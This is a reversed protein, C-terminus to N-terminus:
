GGQGQQGGVLGDEHGKSMAPMMNEPGAHWAPHRAGGVDDHRHARRLFGEADQVCRQSVLRGDGISAKGCGGQRRSGARSGGQNPTEWPAVLRFSPAARPNQCATPRRPSRRRWWCATRPAPCSTTPTM